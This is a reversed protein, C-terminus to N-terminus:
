FIDQQKDLTITRTGDMMQPGYHRFSAHNEGEITVYRTSHPLTNQFAEKQKKSRGNVLKDKSGNIVLAQISDFSQKAFKSAVGVECVVLKTIGPKMEAALTIAVLGGTSHGSLVWKNVTINSTSLVEYM